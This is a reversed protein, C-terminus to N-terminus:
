KSLVLDRELCKTIYGSFKVQSHNENLNVQFAKSAIICWVTEKQQNLLLFNQRYKSIEKRESKEKSKTEMEVKEEKKKKEWVSKRNGHNFHDNISETYM